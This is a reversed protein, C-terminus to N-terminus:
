IKEIAGVAESCKAEIRHLVSILDRREELDCRIQWIRGLVLGTAMAVPIELVMVLLWTV